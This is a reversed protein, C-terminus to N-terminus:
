ARPKINVDSQTIFVKEIKKYSIIVRL